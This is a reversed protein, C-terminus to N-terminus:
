FTPRLAVYLLSISEVIHATSLFEWVVWYRHWLTLFISRSKTDQRDELVKKTKKTSTTKNRSLVTLFKPSTKYQEPYISLFTERYPWCKTYIAYLVETKSYRLVFHMMIVSVELSINKSFSNNITVSTPFFPARLIYLKQFNFGVSYM